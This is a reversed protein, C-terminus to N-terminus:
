CDVAMIAPLLQDSPTEAMNGQWAPKCLLLDKYLKLVHVTM